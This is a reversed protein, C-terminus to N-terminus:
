DLSDSTVWESERGDKEEAVEDKGMKEFGSEEREEAQEDSDSPGQQLIEQQTEETLNLFDNWAKMKEHEMFLATFASCTPEVIDVEEFEEVLNLLENVIFTASLSM